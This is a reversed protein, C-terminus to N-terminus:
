LNESAKERIASQCASFNTFEYRLLMYGFNENLPRLSLVISQVNNKLKAGPASPWRYLYTRKKNVFATMWEIPKQHPSDKAIEDRLTAPGYSRTMYGALEDITGRMSLATGQDYMDKGIAVIACVGTKESHIVLFTEFNPHPKPVTDCSVENASKTKCNGLSSVPSGMEIGFPGDAKAPM